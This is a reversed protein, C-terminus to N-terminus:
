GTILRRHEVVSQQLSEFSTFLTAFRVPFVPFRRMVDEIVAEHRCVRPALWDLDELRAEASEGCFEALPVESFVASIGGCNGVSVSSHGDVGLRSSQVGSGPPTLCYLYWAMPSYSM